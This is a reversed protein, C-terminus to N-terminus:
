RNDSKGFRRETYSVFRSLILTMVLYILAVEMYIVFPQYTRSVILKGTYMLDQLAIISVLSSDKLLAIFENGLPPIVRKFAQPLIVYRMAQTQGMGLSRAAEGQGRDISQIGARFIEAIYAGSNLGMAVIGAVFQYNDPIQFGLLQPVAFYVMLIQVLLPTGRFFDIYAIAFGRVVRSGSLRMLAMFLGIVIGMAVAGATLELTIVAGKLLPNISEIMLEWRLEM